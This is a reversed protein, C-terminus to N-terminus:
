RRAHRKRMYMRIGAKVERPGKEADKVPFLADHIEQSTYRAARRVVVQDGQEDWELVSGPGIGLRKRVESPVSIQGQATVKSQAIAM